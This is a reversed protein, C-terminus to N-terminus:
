SRTRTPRLDQYSLEYATAAGFGHEPAWADGAGLVSGSGASSIESIELRAATSVDLPDSSGAVYGPPVLSFFMRDIDKPYVRDAEGPLLYGGDLVDFDLTVVADTATGSAYNWLRVYWARAAGSADRGEITLTPGNVADLAILGTSKWRFTFRCRSYDHSTERARAPHSARDESEYILGVLDGKRLFAAEVALGREDARTVTSAITGRPFDITWDAAAFRKVFGQEVASGKQTFWISM